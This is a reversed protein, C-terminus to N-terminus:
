FGKTYRRYRREALDDKILGVFVSGAMLGLGAFATILLSDIMCFSGLVLDLICGPLTKIWVALFFFGGSAIATGCIWLIRRM